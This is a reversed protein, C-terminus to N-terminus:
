ENDNELQYSNPVVILFLVWWSFIILSVMSTIIFNNFVKWITVITILGFIIISWPKCWYPKSDWFVKIKNTNM